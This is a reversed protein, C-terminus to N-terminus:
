SYVHARLKANEDKRLYARVARVTRNERWDALSMSLKGFDSEGPGCLRTITERVRTQPQTLVARVQALTMNESRLMVVGNPYRWHYIYVIYNLDDDHDLARLDIHTKDPLKFTATWYTHDESYRWDAHAIDKLAQVFADFAQRRAQQIHHVANEIDDETGCTLIRQVDEFPIYQALPTGHRSINGRRACDESWGTCQINIEFSGLTLQPMSEPAYWTLLWNSHALHRLRKKYRKRRAYVVNNVEHEMHYHLNIKAEESLGDIFFKLTDPKFAMHNLVTQLAILGTNETGSM